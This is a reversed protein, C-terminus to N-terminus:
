QLLSSRHTKHGQVQCSNDSICNFLYFELSLKFLFKYTKILYHDKIKTVTKLASVSNLGRGENNQPILQPPVSISAPFVVRSYIDKRHIKARQLPMLTGVPICHSHIDWFEGKSKQGQSLVSWLISSSCVATM